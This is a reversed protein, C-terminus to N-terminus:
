SFRSSSVIRFLYSRRSSADRNSIVQMMLLRTTMMLHRQILAAKQIYDGVLRQRLHGFLATVGFASQRKSFLVNLMQCSILSTARLYNTEVKVSKM